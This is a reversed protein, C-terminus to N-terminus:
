TDTKTKNRNRKTKFIIQKCLVPLVFLRRPEPECRCSTVEAEGAAMSQRVGRRAARGGLTWHSWLELGKRGRPKAAPFM